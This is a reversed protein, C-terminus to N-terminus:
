LSVDAIAEATPNYIDSQEITKWESSFGKGLVLHAVKV